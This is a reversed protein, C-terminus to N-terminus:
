PTDDSPQRLRVTFRDPMMKIFVASWYKDHMLDVVEAVRDPAEEARVKEYVQGGIRVTVYPQHVNERIRSEARGGLRIYLDGDIDVFWVTAWHEDGEENVTFFELTEEDALAAADWRAESAWGPGCTALLACGCIAARFTM